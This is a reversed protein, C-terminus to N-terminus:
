KVNERIKANFLINTDIYVTKSTNGDEIILKSYRFINRESNIIKANPSIRRIVGEETYWINAMAFTSIIFILILLNFVLWTLYVICGGTGINSSQVIVRM